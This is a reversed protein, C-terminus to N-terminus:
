QEIKKQDLKASRRDQGIRRYYKRLIFNISNKPTGRCSIKEIMKCVVAPDPKESCDKKGGALWAFFSKRKLGERPFVLIRWSSSM